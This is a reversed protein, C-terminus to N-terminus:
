LKVGMKELVRALDDNGEYEIIIRGRKPTHKLTTRAGLHSTVKKEIDTLTAATAAPM